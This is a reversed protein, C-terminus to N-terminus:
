RRLTGVDIAEPPLGAQIRAFMSRYASEIHRAFLETNFLYCNTRNNQLRHKLARLKSPNHALEVALNEYDQMSPAILDTLGVATLLSAAVRAPFAAGMCTLVPLGAWLADSATTHANYPLTDLFLDALRHRALHEPLPLRNAFVLREPNVGHKVAEKRLNDACYPNDALLWLVSGPVRHLIRMWSSFTPPVIKFNNNFCCFVFAAAPLGFQERTFAKESISRTADNVQYSGPLCVVKETYYQRCEAPIVVHDAIVYDYYSAAMTGPYGLYNVQIPAARYAFIKSRARDTIGKLDVAIDIRMDRVLSAADRDNVGNLNVFQTFQKKIRTSMEDVVDPGFSFAYFEFQERDHAEFLGAILYATAHNYFDASFYGIRIKANGRAASIDGLSSDAPYLDDMWIAAAQQQLIPSDAMSMVPFPPSVKQGTGIASILVEHDSDFDRWNCMQMKTHVMTGFIFAYDPKLELAREFNAVAEPLLKLQVLANARNAFAESYSPNIDIAKTYATVAGAVEGLAFLAAGWNFHAEAFNPNIELARRISAIAERPRGLNTLAIGRNSHAEAYNPQIALAHDFSSCADQLRSLALLTNGRNCYAAAYRPELQIASDYSALAEDYRRLANCANGRNFHIVAIRPDLAVANDFDELALKLQGAKQYCTGRNAYAAVFGPNLEIARCYAEIANHTEGLENLANGYNYHVNHSRPSLAILRRFSQSAALFERQAFQANGLRFLEELDRM